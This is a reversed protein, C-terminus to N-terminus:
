GIHFGLIEEFFTLHMGEKTKEPIEEYIHIDDARIYSPNSQSLLPESRNKIYVANESMKVILDEPNHRNSISHHVYLLWKVPSFCCM